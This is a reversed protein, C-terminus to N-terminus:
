VMEDPALTCEHDLTEFQLTTHNIQFRDQLDMAAKALLVCDCDAIDRVLHATLATETTSMPWVHLDHVATVHPLAALYKRVERIEIGAPVAHLALNLSDRLLGWTGWIIIAAIVLSVVPDISHWGTALIALGALVVGFSIAADAALHMFAARINLDDKRGSMFMLATAGNIIIGIAAVWIVIPAAVEVRANFRRIAEWAIGGVAVLLFIANFLAALISSSRLGYTRKETPARRSLAGAWWALLLGLADGLNHGADAILALSHALIGFVAQLVVLLLNLTIGVAFAAGFDIAM